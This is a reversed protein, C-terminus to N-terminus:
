DLILLLHICKFFYFWLLKKDYACCYKYLELLSYGLNSSKKKGAAAATLLKSTFFCFLKITFYGKKSTFNFGGNWDRMTPPLTRGPAPGPRAKGSGESGEEVGGRRTWALLLDSESSSSSSSQSEDQKASAIVRGSHSCSCTYGMMVLNNKLLGHENKVDHTWTRFEKGLLAQTKLWENVPQFLRSVHWRQSKFQLFITIGRTLTTKTHTNLLVSQYWQALISAKVLQSYVVSYFLTFFFLILEIGSSALTHGSPWFHGQVIEM